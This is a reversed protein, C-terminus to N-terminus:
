FFYCSTRPLVLRGSEKIRCPGCQFRRTWFEELTEHTNTIATFNRGLRQRAVILPYKGLRQRPVILLSVCVYVCVCVGLCYRSRM